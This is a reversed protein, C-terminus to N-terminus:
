YRQFLEINVGNPDEIFIKRVNPGFQVVAGDKSTVKVGAGAMRALLGDLDRVQLAMALAGPDPVRLHFRTRPIGQFEYFEM